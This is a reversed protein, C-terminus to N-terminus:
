RWGLPLVYLNGWSSSYEPPSALERKQRPTLGIRDQDERLQDIFSSQDFNPNKKRLQMLISLISDNDEINKGVDIAAKISDDADPLNILSPKFKDIVGKMKPSTDYSILASAQPTTGYDEKLLNFFEESNGTDGFIKGYQKLADFTSKGTFFTRFFGNGSVLEKYQSRAKALDLAKDSWHDAIDKVSSKPNEKLDREMSNELNNWMEGSIDKYIEQETGKQLKKSLKNKLETTAETRRQQLKEYQKERDEAQGLYREEDDRALDAAQDPLFGQNLYDNIREDRQQPSWRVRPQLEPALPNKPNIQSPSIEGSKVINSQTSPRAELQDGRLGQPRNKLNEAFELDRFDPSSRPENATDPRQASRGYANRQAQLQALKQFSEIEHPTIGHVGAVKALYERPTLNQSQDALSQLGARKRQYALEEPVSQALGEGFSKGFNSAASPLTPLIQVM